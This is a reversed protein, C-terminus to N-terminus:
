SNGYRSCTKMRFEGGGKELTNHWDVGVEYLDDDHAYRPQWRQQESQSRSSEKKMPEDKARSSAPLGSSASSTVRERKAKKLAGEEAESDAYYEDSYSGEAEDKAKTLVNAPAGKQVVYSQRHREIRERPDDSWWSSSWWTERVWSGPAEPERWVAAEDRWPV